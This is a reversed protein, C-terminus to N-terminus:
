ADGVGVTFQPSLLNKISNYDKNQFAKEFMKISKQISNQANISCGFILISFLFIKKM